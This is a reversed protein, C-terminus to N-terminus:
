SCRLRASHATTFTAYLLLTLTKAFAMFFAMAIMM